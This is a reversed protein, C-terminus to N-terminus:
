KLANDEGELRLIAENAYDRIKQLDKLETDEKFPFRMIYKIICDTYFKIKPSVKDAMADILDFPEIDVGKVKLVHYHKKNEKLEKNILQLMKEKGSESAKSLYEGINNFGGHVDDVEQAEGEPCKIGVAGPDAIEHRWYCELDSGVHDLIEDQSLAVAKNIDTSLKSTGNSNEGAYWLKVLGANILEGIEDTEFFWYYKKDGNHVKEVLNKLNNTVTNEQEASEAFKPQIESKEFFDGELNFLNVENVTFAKAESLETTLTFSVEDVNIGKLYLISECYGSVQVLDWFYKKDM